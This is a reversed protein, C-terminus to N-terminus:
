PAHAATPLGSGPGWTDPPSDQGAPLTGEQPRQVPHPLPSLFSCPAVQPPRLRARGRAGPGCCTSLLTQTTLPPGSGGPLRRARPACAPFQPEPVVHSLWPWRGAPDPSAEAGLSSAQPSPPAAGAIKRSTRFPPPPRRGEDEVIVAIQWGAREDLPGPALERMLVIVGALPTTLQKGLTNGRPPPTPSARPQLDPHQTARHVRTRCLM